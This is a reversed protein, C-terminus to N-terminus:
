KQAGEDVASPYRPPQGQAALLENVEKKVSLIRSERGLTLQQWRRLEALQENLAVSMAEAQRQATLADEMLSLAALASQRQTELAAAQESRRLKESELRRAEAQKRETIDQVLGAIRVVRGSADREPFGKAICPREEGDPQVTMLEIEYATGDSVARGVADFLVQTSEPTYLETQGELNPIGLDPNRGFLRFMEPSWTVRNTDVDWEFSGLHAMAETRELMANRRLVAEQAAYKETVDSFVLVVGVIQHTADRIPAASDAIQYERGDRTLLATHNALGVVEGHEIVRQVPTALPQRTETSIIRFVESLPRGLAEALSWGTLHEAAPNMGTILGAPDTTIVADDISNLTIALNQESDRLRRDSERLRDTMTNVREALRGLEDGSEVVCRANLDGLAIRDVMAELRHVPASVMRRLLLFTAAYLVALIAVVLMAVTRRTATIAQEVLARTLVVRVEGIKQSGTTDTTFNIAQVRVIPNILPEQSKTTERLKGYGVTTISFEAVEPDAAFSALQEDIAALDVNWVSYALSRSALNVLRDARGELEAFRTEREQEILVYAVGTVVLTVLIALMLMLKTHLGASRPVLRVPVNM